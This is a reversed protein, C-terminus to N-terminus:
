RVSTKPSVGYQSAHKGTADLYTISNSDTSIIFLIARQAPNLRLKKLWGGKAKFGRMM